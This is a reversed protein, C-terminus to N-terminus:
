IARTLNVKKLNCYTTVKHVYFWRNVSNSQGSSPNHEFWPVQLSMTPDQMHLSPNSPFVQLPSLWYWYRYKQNIKLYTILKLHIRDQCEFSICHCHDIHDKLHPKCKHHLSDLILNNQYDDLIYNCSIIKHNM